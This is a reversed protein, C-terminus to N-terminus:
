ELTYLMGVEVPTISPEIWKEHAPYKVRNMVGRVAGPVVAIVSLDQADPVVKEARYGRALTGFFVPHGSQLHRNREPTGKEGGERLQFPVRGRTYAGMRLRIAWILRSRSESLSGRHKAILRSGTGSCAGCILHSAVLWRPSWSTLGIRYRLQEKIPAM